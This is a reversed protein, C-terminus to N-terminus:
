FGYKAVIKKEKKGIVAIAAHEARLSFAIPVGTSQDRLNISSDNAADSIM